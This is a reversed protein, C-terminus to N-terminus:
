DQDELEIVDGDATLQKVKLDAKELLEQCRAILAKGREFLALTGELDRSEGEMILLLNELEGLAQEYSLDQASAFTKAMAKEKLNNRSRRLPHMLPAM